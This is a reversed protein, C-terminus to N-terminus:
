TIDTMNERMFVDSKQPLVFRANTNDPVSVWKELKNLKRFFFIRLVM